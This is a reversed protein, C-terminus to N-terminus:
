KRDTDQNQAFGQRNSSFSALFRLVMLQSQIPMIEPRRSGPFEFSDIRCADPQGAVKDQMHRHSKNSGVRGASRLVGQDLAKRTGRSVHICCNQNKDAETLVKIPLFRPLIQRSLIVRLIMIISMIGTPDHDSRRQDVVTAMQPASFCIFCYSGRAQSRREVCLHSPM